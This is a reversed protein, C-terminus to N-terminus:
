RARPKTPVTQVVRAGRIRQHRIMAGTGTAATRSANSTAKSM